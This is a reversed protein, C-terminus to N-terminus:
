PTDLGGGPRHIRPRKKREPEPEPEPQDREENLRDINEGMRAFFASASEKKRQRESNELTQEHNRAYQELQLDNLAPVVYIDHFDIRTGDSATVSLGGGLTSVYQLFRKLNMTQRGKLFDEYYSDTWGFERCIREKNWGKHEALQLIITNSLRQVQGHLYKDYKTVEDM